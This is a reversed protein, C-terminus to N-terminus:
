RKNDTNMMERFIMSSYLQFPLVKRLLYVFKTKRDPIYRLKPNKQKIVQAVLRAIEEPSNTCHELLRYVYNKIHQTYPYYPSSKNDFNKAYKANEQFIKTPYMGPEILSVHIGFPKLEYFLSESFAELAWKSANYAGFCPAASFGSVSSINIIRGRKRPRMLPIMERTINQVGFFNTEMQDRIEQESLDEFFGGIGYGANNILIDLYGYQDMIQLRAERISARDTVDLQLINAQLNNKNLESQLPGKKDLDRMTPIVRYGEQALHAAITLGFGSSCGTILVTQNITSNLM